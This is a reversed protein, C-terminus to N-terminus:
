VFEIVVPFRELVERALDLQQKDHLKIAAVHGRAQEFYVDIEGNLKNENMSETIVHHISRNRLEPKFFKGVATVPMQDVFEVRKPIAAREAIKEQSYELLEETTVKNIFEPKPQIYVVPLEGAYADPQGIAVVQAVAPHKSIPEEIIVPDINHGGRIILDKARGTLTIFGDDDVFAVDGTNFWDGDVWAKDNDSKDLYGKFVHPGRVLLVGSENPECERVVKNGDLVVARAGTYPFRTGVSGEPGPVESRQRSIICCTETMGYGNTVRVGFKEEFDKRLQKPLPAAGSGVDELLSIDNTGVPVQMLATLITPVAGFASVKFRAAHHWWNKLVNPNRFGEPSMVVITKGAFLSAIGASILGYIHFLPLASMGVLRGKYRVIEEIVQAVFAVNGHTVQAIKPRGTTGGIHFFSATEQSTIIRNNLLKDKPQARIAENFNVVQLGEKKFEFAEETYGPVEVIMLTELTPIQAIVEEVKAWHASDHKVPAMTIFVKTVTTNMIEVLHNSELLPNLPSSIGAAQAGWIALHSEAMNTLMVSVTDKSGVGLSYLANATQTTKEFLQKFTLDIPKENEEATVLCRLAYDNPYKEAVSELLSYSTQLPFREQYTKEQEYAIVDELGNLIPDKSNPEYATKM